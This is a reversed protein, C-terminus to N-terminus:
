RSHQITKFTLRQAGVNIWLLARVHTHDIFRRLHDEHAALSKYDLTTVKFITDPSAWLVPQLRFQRSDLLVATEGRVKAEGGFFHIVAEEYLRRDLGTGWERVAAEMWPVLSQHSPELAIWKNADVAFMTRDVFSLSTNVFRHQVRESRLNILKGHSLGMLLLYNILQAQHRTVLCEVTKLEFVAGRQVLLDVMYEKCFGDFRVAIRVEKRGEAVRTAIADRYIAEDFFRGLERHVQFVCEMVDYALAGFQEQDLRQLEADVVIPMFEGM